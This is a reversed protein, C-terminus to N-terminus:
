FNQRGPFEKWLDKIFLREYIIEWSPPVLEEKVGNRELRKTVAEAERGGAWILVGNNTDILFISVSAKKSFVEVGRDNYKEQYGYTLVPLLLADVNRTSKSLTNLWMQWDTRKSISASYFSPPNECETCDGPKHKWLESIEKQLTEFTPVINENKLPLQEKNEKNEKTEKTNKDKGLKEKTSSLTGKKSESQDKKSQELLLKIILKTSLGRMYPQRDFGAVIFSNFKNCLEKIEEEKVNFLPQNKYKSTSPWVMCELIAIRAPIYGTHGEQIGYVIGQNQSACGLAAFIVILPLLHICNM